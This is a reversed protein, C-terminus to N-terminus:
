CQHESIKPGQCQQCQKTGTMKLDPGVAVRQDFVFCEGAFHTGGIEKFYNLIGGQLQFVNQFGSNILHLAAKECRIGGTCFMIVPKHQTITETLKAKPFESFDKLQLNVANKFTGFKVEYDNRTDILTFDRGEDMWQKFEKPTIYPAPTIVPNVAPQRMTIIEKKIKVKLRNFPVQPAFSERYTLDSFRKDKILTKKFQEINNDAGALSLNIGEASLLITGKLSLQECQQKLSLSLTNLESLPTFKYGAIHHINM